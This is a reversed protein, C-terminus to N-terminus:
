RQLPPALPKGGSRQRVLPYPSPPEGTERGVIVDYVPANANVFLQIKAVLYLGDDYREDSFRFAHTVPQVRRISIVREGSAIYAGGVYYPGVGVKDREGLIVEPLVPIFARPGFHMIAMAHAIKALFKYFSGLPIDTIISVERRLPDALSLRESREAAQPWAQNWIEIPQIDQFNRARQQGCLFGPPPLLPMALLFPYEDPGVLRHEEHETGEGFVVSLDIRRKKAHRKGISGLFLRAPNFMLHMCRDEFYTTKLCCESCSSALLEEEGGM